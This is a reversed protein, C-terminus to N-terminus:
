NDGGAMQKLESVIATLQKINFRNSRVEEMADLKPPAPDIYNHYSKDVVFDM